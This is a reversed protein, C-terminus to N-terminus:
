VANVAAVPQSAQVKGTKFAKIMADVGVGRKNGKVHNDATELLFVAPVTIIGYPTLANLLYMSGWFGVERRADRNELLTVFTTGFRCLVDTTARGIPHSDVKQVIGDLVKWAKESAADLPREIVRAAEVVAPSFLLPKLHKGLSTDAVENVLRTISGTIRTM